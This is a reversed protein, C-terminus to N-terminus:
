KVLNTRSLVSVRNILQVDVCKHNPLKLLRHKPAMSRLLFHATTRNLKDECDVVNVKDLINESASVILKLIKSLVSQKCAFHESGM